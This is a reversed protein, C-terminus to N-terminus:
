PQRLTLWENVKCCQYNGCRLGRQESGRVPNLDVLWIDGRRVGVM